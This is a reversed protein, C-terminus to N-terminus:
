LVIHKILFSDWSYLVDHRINRDNHGICPENYTCKLYAVKEEAASAVLGNMTLKGSSMVTLTGKPVGFVGTLQSSGVAKSLEPVTKGVFDLSGPLEKGVPCVVGTVYVKVSGVPFETELVNWTVTTSSRLHILVLLTNLKLFNSGM